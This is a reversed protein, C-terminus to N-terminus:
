SGQLRASWSEVARSRIRREALTRWSQALEGLGAIGEMEAIDLSRGFIASIIRRLPWDPQPRDQLEFAEGPTVEGAEMVRYYWGTRGTAQVQYAMDPAGFKLNLKWCPQRGQSVQLLASGLRYVDGVCVTEESMGTTSINEGFLPPVADAAILEPREHHWRAYHEFPYHHLAKERGGHHVPDGQHDGALGTVGITWPSPVARKFIGSPVKGPGLASLEAAYMTHIPSSASTM